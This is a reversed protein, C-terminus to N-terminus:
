VCALSCSQTLAVKDVVFSLWTEMSYPVEFVGCVNLVTRNLCLIMVRGPVLGLGRGEAAVCVVATFGTIEGEETLSIKRDRNGSLFVTGALRLLKFRM